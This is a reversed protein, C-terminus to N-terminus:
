LLQATTDLMEYIMDRVEQYNHVSARSDKVIEMALKFGDLFCESALKKDQESLLQFEESTM